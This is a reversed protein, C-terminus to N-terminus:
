ATAKLKSLYDRLVGVTGFFKTLRLLNHATTALNWESEVTEQGRGAFRRIGFNGKIQGFPREGFAFRKAYRKKVEPDSMKERHRQRIEEYEDRRVSRPNQHDSGNRCHALLPCGECTECQYITTKITKGSRQKNNESGIRHLKRGQPCYYIDAEADYVFAQSDFKKTSPNVPLQDAQEVAVPESLDERIAPNDKLVDGKRDPSLFDIEREVELEVVNTVISYAGDAGVIEVKVGYSAEVDDVMSVLQDQENPSNIVCTTVILGLEGEVGIMPTYNPAYGGEKNPLIRSDPDTVPLQFPTKSPDTGQKKREADAERCTELIRRLEAQRQQLDRLEAPLREGEQENDFLEELQDNADMASLKHELETDIQELLKEVKEATLTRSRSADARIRTGDVYLEGLKIVGLQKAFKVLERHLQKISRGHKKRFNSLTTHDIRHGHALWMFEVNNKLQYELKRSSRVDRHIGFLLVAVIIRPPIPPQGRKEIRYDPEFISYDLQDLLEDFLRIPHDAAILDGLTTPILAM